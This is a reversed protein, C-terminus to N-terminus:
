KFVICVLPLCKGPSLFRQLRNAAPIMRRHARSDDLTRTGKGFGAFSTVWIRSLSRQKEMAISGAPQCNVAGADSGSSREAAIAPITNGLEHRLPVQRAHM